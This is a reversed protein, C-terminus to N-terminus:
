PFGWDKSDTIILIYNSTDWGFWKTYENLNENLKGNYLSTKVINHKKILLRFKKDIIWSKGSCMNRIYGKIFDM